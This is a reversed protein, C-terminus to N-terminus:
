LQEAKIDGACLAHKEYHNKQSNEMEETNPLSGTFRKSHRPFKPKARLEKSTYVDPEEFESESEELPIVDDYLARLEYEGREEDVLM